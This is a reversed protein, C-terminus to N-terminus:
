FLRFDKGEDSVLDFEISRLITPVAIENSPEEDYTLPPPSVSGDSFKFTVSQLSLESDRFQIHTLRHGKFYSM